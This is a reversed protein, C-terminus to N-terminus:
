GYRIRPDLLRYTLDILLNVVAVVFGIALTAGSIPQFDLTVTANYIYLGLGPWDFITEVLLAGSLMFVMAQGIVTVSGILGNKLAYKLVIIRESFGAARAMTVYDRNLVELMSARAMRLISATAGISLAFAPLVIHSAAIGFRGLDATLLGDLLYLGTITPPPSVNPDFRGGVPLLGLVLAFLLQLMLALWFRPFSVASVAFLRAVQDIWGNRSVAAAVGGGIGLVIAILLSVLTLEVTAPLVRLLDTAVPQRTFVSQGLDGQVLHGLYDVYQVLVPRDLGLDRRMQEKMEATAFDGLALAVPDGPIIRSVFFVIATVGLLTPILLLLRRVIYFGFSM